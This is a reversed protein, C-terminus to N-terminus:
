GTKQLYVADARRQALLPRGGSDEDLTVVSFDNVQEDDDGKNPGALKTEDSKLPCFFDVMAFFDFVLFAGPAGM